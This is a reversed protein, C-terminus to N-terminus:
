AKKSDESVNTHSVILCKKYFFFFMILKKSNERNEKRVTLIGGVADSFGDLKAISAKLRRQLLQLLLLFKHLDNCVYMCVNYISVKMYEYM